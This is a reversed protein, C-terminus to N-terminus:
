HIWVFFCFFFLLSCKMNMHPFKSAAFLVVPDEKSFIAPAKIESDSFDGEFRWTGMHRRIMLCISIRVKILNWFAINRRIHFTNLVHLVHHHYPVCTINWEVISGNMLLVYIYIYIYIYLYQLARTAVLVFITCDFDNGNDRRTFTGCSMLGWKM